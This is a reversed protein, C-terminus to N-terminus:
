MLKSRDLVLETRSYDQHYMKRIVVYQNMRGEDRHQQNSAVPM